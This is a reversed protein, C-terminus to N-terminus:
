QGNQEGDLSVKRRLSPPPECVIRRDVGTCPHRFTLEAAHLHYGPDGPLARGGPVPVGGAAYLPDGVLPHGAAALHIRIQHPRGTAIDVDCLFEGERQEVVTVRSLSPKGAASAAHVSGLLAHPVPGIPTDIELERRSPTGVALARYRKGVERSIWQRTLEALTERARAFLVVGSTWRGLRHLPTAGPAYARVRHLLTSGLFGGGPLTPLGAPKAVALLDGDDHLVAFSAPADPETWAPRRWVLTQGRRLVTDPRGPRSDVLVRGAEIRDQWQSASSHRYRRALYALLREGDADAGIQERYEFGENV